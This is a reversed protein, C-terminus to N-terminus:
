GEAAVWAAEEALADQVNILRGDIVRDADAAWIHKVWERAEDVEPDTPGAHLVAVRKIDRGSVQKIPGRLKGYAWFARSIRTASQRTANKVNGPEILLSDLLLDRRESRMARAVEPIKAHVYRELRHEYLANVRVNKLVSVGRPRVVMIVEDLKKRARLTLQHARDVYPMRPTSLYHDRLREILADNPERLLARPRAIRLQPGMMAQLETVPIGRIIQEAVAALIAEYVGIEDPAVMGSLRPLKPQYELRYPAGNGLVIGVNVAEDSEPAPAAAVLSFWYGHGQTPSGTMAM